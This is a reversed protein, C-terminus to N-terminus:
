KIRRYDGEITTVKVDPSNDDITSIMKIGKNAAWIMGAVGLAIGGTGLTGALILPATHYVADQIVASGIASLASFAASGVTMTAVKSFVKAKAARPGGYMDVINQAERATKKSKKLARNYREKGEPTLTGDSNQYKRIGWKQGKIGHHMLYDTGDNWAYM